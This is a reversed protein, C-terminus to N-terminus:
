GLVKRATEIKDPDLKVLRVFNGGRLEWGLLEERNRFPWTRQHVQFLARCPVRELMGIAGCMACQSGLGIRRIRDFGDVVNGCHEERCIYISQWPGRKHVNPAALLGTPELNHCGLRECQDVLEEDQYIPDHVHRM